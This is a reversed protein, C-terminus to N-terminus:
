NAKLSATGHQTELMNIEIVFTSLLSWFWVNKDFKYRDKKIGCFTSNQNWASQWGSPARRDIGLPITRHEEDSTPLNNNKVTSEELIIDNM